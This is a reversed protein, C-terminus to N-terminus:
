FQFAYGVGITAGFRNDVSDDDNRHQLYGASGIIEIFHRNPNQHFLPFSYIAEADIEFKDHDSNHYVARPGVYLDHGEPLGIGKGLDWGLMIGAGARSDDNIFAEPRIEWNPADNFRFEMALGAEFGATGVNVDAILRPNTAADRIAAQDAAGLVSGVLLLSSPLLYRMPSREHFKHILHPVASRNGM